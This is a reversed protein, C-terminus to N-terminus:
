PTIRGPERLLASSDRDLFITANGHRQLISAPYLPSVEGQVANRVAEAKRADPVSLVLRRGKMIQRISMSIAQDPVADLTTFWGEGLQQRRCAEDLRVLLYPAEADFDAPPDNFALHCNEGIGALCLDVTELDLLRNLREVERAPDAADGIIFEMKTLGKLRSCVRERLYRRFSAPHDEPLGVYEDLHFGSVRSWDVDRNALADLMEFQSAGTAFVVVARGNASIADGIAAAAADAAAEGLEDKTDHISLEM